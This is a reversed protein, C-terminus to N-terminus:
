TCNTTPSKGNSCAGGGPHYQMNQNFLMNAMGTGMAGFTPGLIGGIAMTIVMTMLQRELDAQPDAPKDGKIEPVKLEKKNLKPDDLKLNEAVGSNVLAGGSAATGQGGLASKASNGDFSRSNLNSALDGGAGASASAVTEVKKLLDM